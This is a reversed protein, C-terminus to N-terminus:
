DALRPSLLGFATRSLAIATFMSQIRRWRGAPVRAITHAWLPCTARAGPAIPWYRSCIMGPFVTTTANVVDPPAYEAAVAPDSGRSKEYGMMGGEGGELLM